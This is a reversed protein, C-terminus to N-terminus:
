EDVDGNKIEKFALLKNLEEVEKIMKARDRNIVYLIVQWPEVWKKIFCIELFRQLVFFPRAEKIPTKLPTSADRPRWYIDLKIKDKNVL